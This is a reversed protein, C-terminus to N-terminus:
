IYHKYRVAALLGCTLQNSTDILTSTSSLSPPALGIYLGPFRRMFDCDTWDDFCFVFTSSYDTRYLYGWNVKEYNIILINALYTIRFQVNFPIGNFITNGNKSISVLYDSSKHLRFIWRVSFICFSQKANINLCIVDLRRWFISNTKRYCKGNEWFPEM